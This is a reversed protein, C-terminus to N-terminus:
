NVIAPISNDLPNVETLSDPLAFNFPRNTVYFSEVAHWENNILISTHYPEHIFTKGKEISKLETLSDKSYYFFKKTYFGNMGKGEIYYKTLDSTLILIETKGSTKHFSKGKAEYIINIWGKYNNPIFYYRDVTPNRCSYLASFSVMILIVTIPFKM